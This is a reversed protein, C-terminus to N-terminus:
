HKPKNGMVMFSSNLDTGSVFINEYGKNLLYSSIDTPRIITKHKTNNWPLHYPNGKDSTVDPLYLFLTGGPKLCDDWHDLAEWPKSLHELLHSSFIYDYDLDPLNHAHFEYGVTFDIPIAGPFCWETKGCGIDVGKGKCVHKAYPIAFQSAFGEAQFKPYSKGNYAITDIM